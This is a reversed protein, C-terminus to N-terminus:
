TRLQPLGSYTLAKGLYITRELESRLRSLERAKVSIAKTNEEKDLELRKIEEERHKIRKSLVEEMYEPTKKEFVSARDKWLALNKEVAKIQDDKIELQGRINKVYALYIWGAVLLAMGNAGLQFYNILEQMPPFSHRVGRM